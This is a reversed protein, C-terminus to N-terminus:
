LFYFFFKEVRNSGNMGSLRSLPNSFTVFFLNIL